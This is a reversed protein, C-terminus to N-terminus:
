AWGVMVSNIIKVSDVSLKYDISKIAVCDDRCRMFCDDITFDKCSVPNIGDVSYIAEYGFVKVNKYVSHHCDTLTNSWGSTNRIFIGNVELNTSVVSFDFDNRVRLFRAVCSMALILM